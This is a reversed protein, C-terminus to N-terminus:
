HAPWQRPDIMREDDCAYLTYDLDSGSTAADLIEGYHEFSDIGVIMDDIAPQAAIFQLAAQLLTLGATEADKRFRELLPLLPSFYPPLKEPAMLLLGQLFVSRAHIEVNHNKLTDLHGGDILRRDFVNLPLQVIDLTRSDALFDLDDGGYISVGINRVKGQEKLRVLVDILEDAYPGRADEPHHILLAYIENQRLARLSGELGDRVAVGVDTIDTRTHFVPTKTVIRFSHGPRLARGLVQESDGYSPATDIVVGGLNDARSLIRAVEDPRTVGKNNAIGYPTGFQVTGIGIKLGNAM